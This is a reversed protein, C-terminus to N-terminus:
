PYEPWVYCGEGPGDALEPRVAITMATMDGKFVVKLGQAQIFDKELSGELVYMQHGTTHPTSSTFPGFTEHGSAARLFNMGAHYEWSVEVDQINREHNYCAVVKYAQNLNAQYEWEEFYALRMCSLYYFSLVWLAGILAGRCVAAGRSLGPIAAAICVMLTALPLFFLGTRSVPILLGFLTYALKHEVIGLITVASVLGGLACLWAEQPSRRWVRDRVIWGFQIAALMGTVPLIWARLMQFVPMLLPNILYPSPQYMSAFRLSHLTEKLTTVGAIISGSGWHLLTWSPIFLVVLLGPMIGAALLKWRAAPEARMAWVLILLITNAGVFALSFNATFALGLFASSIATVAILEKASGDRTRGRDPQRAFNLHWVASVGIASILFANAIGYGRAAVFFDFIFPNYVLCLFLPIRLRWQPSITQCLRYIAYIYIAAGILTPIRVSFASLGLISTFMRALMSNLMHNSAAADWHSASAKGAFFLYDQAEDGTLAQVCARVVAWAFAFWALGIAVARAASRSTVFKLWVKADYM